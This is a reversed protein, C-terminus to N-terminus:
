WELLVQQYIPRNDFFKKENTIILSEQEHTFSYGWDIEFIEWDKPLLENAMIFDFIDYVQYNKSYWIGDGDGGSSIVEDFLWKIIIKVHDNNKHLKYYKM